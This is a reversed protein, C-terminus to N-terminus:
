LLKTLRFPLIPGRRNGAEYLPEARSEEDSHKGKHIYLWVSSSHNTHLYYNSLVTYNIKSFLNDDQSFLYKFM